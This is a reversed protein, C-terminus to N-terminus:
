RRPARGRTQWPWMSSHRRQHVLILVCPQHSGLSFHSPRNDARSCHRSGATPHRSPCAPLCPPSPTSNPSIQHLRSFRGGSSARCGRTRRQATWRARLWGHRAQFQPTLWIDISLGDYGVIQEEEGFLRRLLPAPLCTTPNQADLPPLGCAARLVAQFGRSVDHPQLGDAARFCGGGPLGLGTRRVPADDRAPLQRGGGAGGPGGQGEEAQPLRSLAAVCCCQHTTATSCLKSTLLRGFLCACGWGACAM